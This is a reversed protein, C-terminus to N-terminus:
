FSASPVWIEFDHYRLINFEKLLGFGAAQMEDHVQRRTLKQDAPPGMPLDGPKYQLIAVRGGPALASRLRRFYDVRNRLHRYTDVLLILDLRAPPLHPTSFSALVPVVNSIHERLLRARLADLQRPEVDVAYVIGRKLHRALPITFVGPGSGLDAVAADDPLALAEVVEEPKLEAIREPSLLRQIYSGIDQRELPERNPGMDVNQGVSQSSALLLCAAAVGIRHLRLAATLM